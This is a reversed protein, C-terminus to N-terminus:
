ATYNSKGNISIIYILLIVLWIINSVVLWLPVYVLLQRKILVMVLYSILTVPIIVMGMFFGIVIVTSAIVQDNTWDWILISLSLLICIGCIFALRSLFLLWRM